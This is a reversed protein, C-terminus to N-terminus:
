VLGNERNGVASSATHPNVKEMCILTVNSGQPKESFKVYGLKGYLALNKRSKHGTFLEYRREGSFKDEIALMLKKGIGRSQYEPRVILRSIHCTDEEARGRVAGVIKGQYMAKLFIHSKFDQILGDLTQILPPLRFDNYLMGQHHFASKQIELIEGADSTNADRIEIGFQGSGDSSM